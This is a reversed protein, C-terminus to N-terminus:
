VEGDKKRKDVRLSEKIDSELKEFISQSPNEV